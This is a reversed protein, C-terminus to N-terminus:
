NRETLYFAEDPVDSPFRYRGETTDLAISKIINSIIIILFLVM